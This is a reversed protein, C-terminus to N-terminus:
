RSGCSRESRTRPLAAVIDVQRIGTVAGIQDRVMQVLEACLRAQSVEDAPV